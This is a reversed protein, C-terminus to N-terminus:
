MMHWAVESADQILIIHWTVAKCAKAVCSMGYLVMLHLVSAHPHTSCTVKLVGGCIGCNNVSVSLKRRTGMTAVQLGRVCVNSVSDTSTDSTLRPM